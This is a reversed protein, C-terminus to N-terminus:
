SRSVSAIRVLRLMRPTYDDPLGDPLPDADLNELLKTMLAGEAFRVKNWGRAFDGWSEAFDATGIYPLALAHWQKVIDRLEAQAADPKRAKVHRALAFM